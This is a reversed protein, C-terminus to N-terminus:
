GGTGGHLVITVLASADTEARLDHVANGQLFLVQGAELRREGTDLGVVLVGEICQITIEGPVKHPPLTKGAPLVVRMVELQRSKFIAATRRDALTPGFPRVDRPEGPDAHELAM